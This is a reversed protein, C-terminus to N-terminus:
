SNESFIGDFINSLIRYMGNNWLAKCCSTKTKKEKKKEVTNRSLSAVTAQKIKTVQQDLCTLGSDSKNVHCVM